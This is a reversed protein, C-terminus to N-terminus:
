VGQSSTQMGLPSLREGGGERRCAELCKRCPLTSTTKLQDPSRQTWRTTTSRGSPGGPPQSDTSPGTEGCRSGCQGAEGGITSSISLMAWPRGTSRPTPSAPRECKEALQAGCGSSLSVSSTSIAQRIWAPGPQSPDVYRGKSSAVGCGATSCSAALVVPASGCLLPPVPAGGGSCDLPGVRDAWLPDSQDARWRSRGLRWLVGASHMKRNGRRDIVNM